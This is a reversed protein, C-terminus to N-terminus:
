EESLSEAFVDLVRKWKTIVVYKAIVVALQKRLDLLLEFSDVQLFSQPDGNPRCRINSVVQM